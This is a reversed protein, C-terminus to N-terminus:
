EFHGSGIVIVLVLVLVLRPGVEVHALELMILLKSANLFYYFIASNNLRRSMKFRAQSALDVHQIRRVRSINARYAELFVTCYM